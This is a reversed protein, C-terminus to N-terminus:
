MSEQLYPELISKLDDATKLGFPLPHVEGKRDIVLMPTSPPNLFQDGYLSSIERSVEVPAVTYWWHFGNREVYTKLSELDENPDIDIGLSIFDDREGLLEHLSIVQNQQQRCNTCWIAMTEVLVVKGKFDAITFTNGSSADTLEVSFWAPAKMMKGTDEMVEATEGMVEETEAMMEPTQDVMMELTPTASMAEKDGAMASDDNMGQPACAALLISLIVMMVVLSRLRM